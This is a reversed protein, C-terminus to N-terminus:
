RATKERIRDWLPGTVSAYFLVADGVPNSAAYRLGNGDRTPFAAMDLTALLSRLFITDRFASAGLIALGSSGPSIELFPIVPGSDIDKPGVWADPWERAYGFGLTTRGLERRARAYQDAAFDADVVQLCHAAMWLSSGEPGDLHRGDLSFSSVLLGTAPHILRAKAMEVWRRLFSAHDTGDLADSARLAALAVTNCFTWCEDPYSEACLVPGRGMRDAIVRVREALLPQYPPHEQVLRRAALMLAIEGDVFLSRPPDQRFPKLRAYAMLFHLPGREAELRLTEDLIRDIVDLAEDRVSPDRLALNALGWVLFSRGMFDWEANSARMRAVERERLSDDAWLRLHHAALQRAMPHVTDHRLIATVDTAYFLHLVPLWAAAALALAALARLRSSPAQTDATM